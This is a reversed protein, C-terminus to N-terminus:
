VGECLQSENKNGHDKEYRCLTSKSKWVSSAATTLANAFFHRSMSIETYEFSFGLIYKM